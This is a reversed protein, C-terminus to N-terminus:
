NKAIAYFRKSINQLRFFNKQSVKMAELDGELKKVRAELAAKEMLEVRAILAKQEDNLKKAWLLVEVSPPGHMM